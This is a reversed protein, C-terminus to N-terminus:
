AVGAARVFLTQSRENYQVFGDADLTRLLESLEEQTLNTM